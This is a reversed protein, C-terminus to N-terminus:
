TDECFVRTTPPLVLQLVPSIPDISGEDVNVHMLTQLCGIAELADHM